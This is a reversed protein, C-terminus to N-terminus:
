QQIVIFINFTNFYCRLVNGNVRELACCFIFLYEFWQKMQLNRWFIWIIHVFYNKKKPRACQMTNRTWQRKHMVLWHLTWGFRQSCCIASFLSINRTTNIIICRLALCVSESVSWQTWHIMQFLWLDISNCIEGLEKDSGTRLVVLAQFLLEKSFWM